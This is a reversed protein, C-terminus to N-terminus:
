EKEKPLPVQETGALYAVLDRVEEDKLALFIGEPMMSVPLIKRSALDDKSLVVRETLSQVTLSNDNEASIIGSVARGDKTTVVNLQYDKGVAANPDLVNELLYDLTARDSGTIDPAIQGGEGYLKHCAACTRTFILRGNSLNAKKLNELTLLKRYREFLPKKNVATPRLEGWAERLSANLKEDNFGLIQRAAFVSVESRPIIGRALAELLAGAYTPRSVLMQVTERKEADNLKAYRALVLGPVDNGGFVAMGRLAELRLANDDLLLKLDGALGDAKKEVLVNLARRREEVPAKADLVKARMAKLATEDGFALGLLRVEERIGANPSQGLKASVKKWSPPASLNRRGALGDRMGKLLDRRFAPDEVELILQLIPELNDAACLSFVEAFLVFGFLATRRLSRVTFFRPKRSKQVIIM